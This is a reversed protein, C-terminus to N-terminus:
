VCVCTSYIVRVHIFRCTKQMSKGCLGQMKGTSQTCECKSAWGRVRVSWRHREFTTVQAYIQMGLNHKDATKSFLHDVITQGQVCEFVCLCVCVRIHLDPPAYFSSYSLRLHQKKFALPVSNCLYDTKDTQLNRPQSTVIHDAHSHETHLTTTDTPAMKIMVM